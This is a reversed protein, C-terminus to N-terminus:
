ASRSEAMMEAHQTEDAAIKGYDLRIIRDAVHFYRDDHTIVFVTKGKRQLDPLIEHYFIEKFGPDQDAAWEDFLCLPRDELCAV